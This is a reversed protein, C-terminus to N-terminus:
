DANDIQASNKAEEEFRRMMHVSLRVMVMNAYDYRPHETRFPFYFLVFCFLVFMLDTGSRIKLGVDSGVSWGSEKM